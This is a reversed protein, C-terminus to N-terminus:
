QRVKMGDFRQNLERVGAKIEALSERVSDANARQMADQHRDIQDQTKRAEELVVVRKDLTAWGVSLTILFGAFTLLHGANITPDFTIRKREPQTAEQHSTM